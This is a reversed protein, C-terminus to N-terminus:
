FISVSLKFLFSIYDEISNLCLSRLQSEMIVALCNFFKSILPEDYENPLIGKKQGQMLNISVNYVSTNRAQTIM